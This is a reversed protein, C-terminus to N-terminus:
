ARVCAPGCAGVQLFAVVLLALVVLMWHALVFEAVDWAAAAIAASAWANAEQLALSGAAEEVVVADGDGDGAANTTAVDDSATPAAEPKAGTSGHPLITTAV